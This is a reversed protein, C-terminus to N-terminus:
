EEIGDSELIGVEEPKIGLDLALKALEIVSSSNFATKAFQIARQIEAKLLSFQEPEHELSMPVVIADFIVAKSKGECTRLVRGRRQIFQRPNQSSALIIAHSIRPIDVGQDLCKISCLIGSFNKYYELTESSESQMGTHYELPSFGESVLSKMVLNLQDQDECYILWSEGSCYWKKIVETALGIKAQAKKAIRSRRILMHKLNQPIETNKRKCRAFERSIKRSENAWKESETVNLRVPKPYYNYPVLRGDNIADELTYPPQVISGFYIMIKRTGEPDQYRRPTASLGLRPGLQLNLINSNKDSGIEHVEDVILLIHEGQNVARLFNLNRATQMTALVVRKGLGPLSSTFGKLRGDIKWKTNGGGARLLKIGEIEEKLESEWQEFLLKDPVLVIAVGEPELHEKLAILATFTKGSGTAHELIGKRNQENWKAIAELQHKLPVRMGDSNGEFKQKIQSNEFNFIDILHNSDIDDISIKALTKLKETAVDPFPVVNLGDIRDNWLKEFYERNRAVRREEKNELWSCFVDLTEHNGKEYWGTLTENISGKFIVSNGFEDCFIGLKVHYDGQAGPMFVLRIDLVGLSILTALAETNKRLTQNELLQNIDRIVACSVCDLKSKYGSKMADIDNSNLYPSCILRIKGGQRAFDLIPPAILLLVSSSFYGVSRDYIVAESLCPRYFYEVLNIEGSFYVEQLRLDSLM